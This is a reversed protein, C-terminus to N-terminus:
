DYPASKKAKLRKVSLSQWTIFLFMGKLYLWQKIFICLLKGIALAFETHSGFLLTKEMKKKKEEQIGILKMKLSTM